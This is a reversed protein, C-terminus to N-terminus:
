RTLPASSPFFRRREEPSRSWIQSRRNRKTSLVTVGCDFVSFSADDSPSSGVACLSVILRLVFMPFYTPANTVATRASDVYADCGQTAAFIVGEGAGATTSFGTVTGGCRM